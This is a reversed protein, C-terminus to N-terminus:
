RESTTNIEADFMSRIRAAACGPDLITQVCTEPDSLLEISSFVDKSREGNKIETGDIIYTATTESETEVREWPVLDPRIVHLSCGKPQVKDPISSEPYLACKWTGNSLPSSHCCTRCNVEKTCKSGHCHDYCDCMKCQYWTKKESIKDPISNTFAIMMGKELYRKAVTPKYDGTKHYIRDNDKCVAFYLWRNIETGKCYLNMQVFHQPKSEEVGFKVLNEFSKKNHTKIELLYPNTPSQPYGKAVIGDISGGIHGGLVVRRQQQKIDLGIKKLDHIVTKEENHGRRFLRKMRGSFQSVVGWRFMLWIYRDCHHGLLSCGLHIRPTEVQEEHWKDILADLTHTPPPIKM